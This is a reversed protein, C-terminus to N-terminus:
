EQAAASHNVVYEDIKGEDILRQLTKNISDLLDKNGKAVAIAYEEETNSGDAYVLEITKTGERSKSIMEAPLKDIVVADVRGNALDAAADIANNYRAVEAGTDQLVGQVPNGDDDKYGDIEDTLILDGTTGTQVGIKMGKLDEITKVTSDNKLIIYQKSTVYKISFDVQEKRESTITMGAAGFACKGSQVSPIISDFNTDTVELTVGIDKAIEEAIDVDVGAVKEGDRYEFPPFAANTYMTIKGSEKIQALSQKGGGEKTTTCGALVSVCLAAAMCFAAIKKIIKM